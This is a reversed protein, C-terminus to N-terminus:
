LGAGGNVIIEVLAAFKERVWPQAIAWECYSPDAMM